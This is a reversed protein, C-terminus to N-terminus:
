NTLALPSDLEFVWLEVVKTPKCGCEATVPVPQQSAAPVEMVVEDFYVALLTEHRSQNLIESRLTTNDIWGNQTCFTTLERCNKLYENIQQTM